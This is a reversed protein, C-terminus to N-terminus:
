NGNDLGGLMAAIGAVIFWMINLDIRYEFSSLWNNL